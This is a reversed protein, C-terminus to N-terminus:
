HHVANGVLGAVYGIAFVAAVAAVMIPLARLQLKALRVASYLAAGTSVAVVGTMVFASWDWVPGFGYSRALEFTIYATAVALLCAVIACVGAGAIAARPATSGTEVLQNGGVSVSREGHRGAAGLYRASYYSPALQLCRM